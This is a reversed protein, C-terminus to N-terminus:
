QSLGMIEYSKIARPLPLVIHKEFGMECGKNRSVSYKGGMRHSLAMLNPRPFSSAQAPEPLPCGRWHGERVSVSAIYSPCMPIWM